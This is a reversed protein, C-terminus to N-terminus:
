KNKKETLIQRVTKYTWAASILGTFIVVPYFILHSYQAVMFNLVILILGGIVPYWGRQGRSIVLLVMGACLCLGGVVSLVALPEGVAIDGIAAAGSSVDIPKPATTCCPPSLALTAILTLCRM